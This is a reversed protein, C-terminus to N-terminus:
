KTLILILAGDEAYAHGEITAELSDLIKVRVEAEEDEGYLLDKFELVTM